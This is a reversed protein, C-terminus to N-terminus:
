AESGGRLRADGVGDGVALAERAAIALARGSVLLDLDSEAPVHVFGARCGEAVGHLLLYLLDNCVYTGAHYSLSAPIDARGLAAVIAKCPLTSFHADPGDAVIREDLPQAGANDPIRADRLNIGIREPTVAKRGAALGAAIVVRPKETEVLRLLERAAVGFEVPLEKAEARIGEGSLLKAAYQAASWSPNSADGGFPAFGSFLVDLAM